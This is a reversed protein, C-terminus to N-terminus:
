KAQATHWLIRDSCAFLLVAWVAAAPSLLRRAVFGFLLLAGCSCLFPVLRWVWPADGFCLIATKELWLFPFPAAQTLALPGCLQAYDKELVNVIVYGEDCWISPDRLFHYSRLALGLVMALAVASVRLKM